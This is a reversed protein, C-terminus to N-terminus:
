KQLYIHTYLDTHLIYSHILTHVCTHKRTDMHRHTHTHIYGHKHTCTYTDTTVGGLRVGGFQGGGSQPDLQVTSTPRHEMHETAVATTDLVQTHQKSRQFPLGSGCLDGQVISQIAVYTINM